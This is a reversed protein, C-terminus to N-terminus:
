DGTLQVALDGLILFLRTKRISGAGVEVIEAVSIAETIQLTKNVFANDVLVISELARIVRSPTSASDVLALTDSVNLTKLARAVDALNVADAIITTKNLLAMDSVGIADAVTKIIAGTIVNILESLSVADAVILSSKNGRVADAVGILDAVAFTKNRLVADSLNL